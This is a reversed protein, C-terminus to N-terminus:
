DMGDLDDETIKYCEIKDICNELFIQLFPSNIRPSIGRVLTNGNKDLYKWVPINLFNYGWGDEFKRFINIRIKDCMGIRCFGKPMGLFFTGIGSGMTGPVHKSCSLDNSKLYCETDVGCVCGLCQYEKIALMVMTQVDVDEATSKEENESM